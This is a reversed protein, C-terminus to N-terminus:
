KNSYEEEASFNKAGSPIRECPIEHSRDSFTRRMFSLDNFSDEKEDKVETKNQDSGAYRQFSLMGSFRRKPLFIKQVALSEKVHSRM